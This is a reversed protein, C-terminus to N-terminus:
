PMSPIPKISTQRRAMSGRACHFSFHSRKENQPIFAPSIIM